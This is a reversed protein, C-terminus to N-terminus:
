RRRSLQSRYARGCAGCLKPPLLAESINAMVPKGCLSLPLGGVTKADGVIHRVGLGLRGSVARAYTAGFKM